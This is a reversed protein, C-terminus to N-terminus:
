TAGEKNPNVLSDVMISMLAKTHMVADDNNLGQRKFGSYTITWLETLTGIGQIIQNIQDNNM